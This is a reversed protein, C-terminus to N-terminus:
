GRRMRRIRFRYTGDAPGLSVVEYGAQRAWAEVDVQFQPDTTLVELVQGEQLGRLAQQTKMLPLPCILGRCDLITATRDEAQGSVRALDEAQM